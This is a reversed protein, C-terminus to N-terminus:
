SGSLDVKYIEEGEGVAVLRIQGRNTKGQNSEAALDIRDTTPECAFVLLESIDAISSVITRLWTLEVRGDAVTFQWIKIRQDWSATLLLDDGLIKVKSVMSCHKSPCNGQLLVTANRGSSTEAKSEIKENVQDDESRGSEFAFLTYGISTDEGATFVLIKDPEIQVSDISNIGFRHAQLTDVVLRVPHKRDLKQDLQNLDLESEESDNVVVGLPNSPFNRTLESTRLALSQLDFEVVRLSGDTSTILSSSSGLDLLKLPCYSSLSYTGLLHIFSGGPSLAFLRLTADSCVTSLLYDPRGPLRRLSLDMFRLQSDLQQKPKKIWPLNMTERDSGWVFYNVLQKVKLQGSSNLRIQWVMLNSASGATIVLCHGVLDSSHLLNSSVLDETQEHDLLLDEVVCTRVNSIHGHLIAEVATQNTAPDFSNVFLESDECGTLFYHKRNGSIRESSGAESSHKRDGSRRKLFLPQACLVTSTHYKRRVLSAEDLRKCAYILRDRKLYVFNLRNSSIIFDWPKTSGGAPVAWVISQSHNNWVVFMSQRFGIVYAPDSASRDFEIRSIADMEISPKISRLLDVMRDDNPEDFDYELIRGDRGCSYFKSQFPHRILQKCGGVLSHVKKFLKVLVFRRSAALETGPENVPEGGLEGLESGAETGTKSGFEAGIEGELEGAHSAIQESKYVVVNGSRDGFVIVQESLKLVCNVQQYKCAPLKFKAPRNGIWNSESLSSVIVEGDPGCAVLERENKHAVVFLNLLKHDAIKRQGITRISRQESNFEFGTVEGRINGLVAHYANPEVALVNYNSYERGFDFEAVLQNNAAPVDGIALVKVHGDPQTVLLHPADDPNRQFFQFRKAGTTTLELQTEERIADEM